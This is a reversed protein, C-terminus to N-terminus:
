NVILLSPFRKEKKFHFAKFSNSLSQTPWRSVCVYVTKQIIFATSFHKSLSIALHNVLLEQAEM